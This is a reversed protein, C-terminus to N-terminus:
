SFGVGIAVGIKGVVGGSAAGALLLETGGTIPNDTGFDYAASATGSGIANIARIELSYETSATLGTITAPSAGISAWSGADLRYEFGTEDAADYSYTIVASTEAADVNTITTTGAPPDVTSAAGDISVGFRAVVDLSSTTWNLTTSTDGDKRFIGLGAYTAPSSDALESTPATATLTISGGCFAFVVATGDVSSVIVQSHSTATSGPVSSVDGSYGQDADSYLTAAMQPRYSGNAWTGVVDIDGDPVGSALIYVKVPRGSRTMAHATLETMAVSGPNVVCGTPAAGGSASTTLFAFVIKNALTGGGALSVTATSAFSSGAFTGSAVHNPQAM